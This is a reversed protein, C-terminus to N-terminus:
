LATDPFIDRIILYSPCRVKQKLRRVLPGLFISPSYWVVGDWPSQGLPSHQLNRWMSYPMLLEGIARRVYSIDKTKPTRLRLVQVGRWEEISWPQRLDPSAVMMTIQHGQRVFEASLDRLQVAASCRMPPYADAILAIRM